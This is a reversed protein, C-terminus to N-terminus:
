FTGASQADKKAKKDAANIAAEGQKAFMAMYPEALDNYTFVVCPAGNILYPCNVLDKTPFQRQYLADNNLANPDNGNDVNKKLLMFLSKESDMSVQIDELNITHSKAWKEAQEKTLNKADTFIFDWKHGPITMRVTIEENTYSLYTTEFTLYFGPCHLDEIKYKQIEKKANPFNKMFTGTLEGLDSDLYYVKVSALLREDERKNKLFICEVDIKSNHSSIIKVASGIYGRFDEYLSRGSGYQRSYSEYEAQSEFLTAVFLESVGEVPSYNQSNKYGNHEYTYIRDADEDTSGTIDKLKDGLKDNQEKKKKNEPYQAAPDFEWTLYPEGFNFTKFAKIRKALIDNELKNTEIAATTSVSQINPQDSLGANCVATTLVFLVVISNQISKEM